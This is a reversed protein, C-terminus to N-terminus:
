SHNAAVRLQQEVAPDSRHERLADDPRGGEVPQPVRKEPLPLRLIWRAVEAAALAQGADNWHNDGDTFYLKAPENDAFVEFLNVCELGLASAIGAAASSLNTQRYGPFRAFHTFNPTLNRTLDRSSPQVVLLLVVGKRRALDQANALLSHMLRLKLQSSAAGPDLALDFDYHDAFSSFPGNATDLYARYESEHMGLYFGIEEEPTPAPLTLELGAARLVKTAAKTLYLSSAFERARQRAGVPVPACEGGTLCPDPPGGAAKQVLSGDDALYLIRNRLLDGFDNDAFLHFVVLDPRYRDVESRFRLYSQDPGFGPVGANLVEFPKGTEERLRQELRRAFTDEEDSFRAFINSDGYVIIRPGSKPGIEAGRFSASNTNWHTVVEGTGTRRVFPRDRLNPKVTVLYEPHPQFAIENISRLSPRPDSEGYVARLLFETGALLAFAIVLVVLSDRLIM